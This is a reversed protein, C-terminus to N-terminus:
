QEYYGYNGGYAYRKYGYGRKMNVGNFLITPKTLKDKRLFDGANELMQKKTVGARVIYLTNTIFESFLLADSVLGIPPSDVIIVDFEEKLHIFLDSLADELLLEQPNTRISGCPIFSLNTDPVKQCIDDLTSEGALFDTVGPEKIAALGLHNALKPKRLDLELLITKQRTLAFSLALNLAVFTKGEGSISSTVLLTQQAKKNQFQLNTRILRFREAIATRVNKYVVINKKQRKRNISGLIPLKSIQQIDEETQIRSQLMDKGVLLFFPLLFGSFLGSLYVLSGKPSIPKMSVRPLDITTSNTTTAILSLATEERKQLLFLYLNEKISQQRKIKLLGREQTPVQRLRGVLDQNLGQISSLKKNLDGKLNNITTRIVAQLSNLQQQNSMLLPNSDKATELLKRRNLVLNNYPEILRELATNALILSSPILPFENPKGTYTDMSELISLQVELNTQEENYKSMEKMVLDLNTAADGGIANIKKFQEVNEEVANLEQTIGDLRENIFKLSNRTINNKNAITQENYFEILQNLITKGREPIVETLRLEVITAELDVLNVSLKKLYNETTVSPNTFTLHYTSDAVLDLTPIVILRFSGYPTSAMEGFNFKGMIIDGRYFNFQQYDIPEVQFSLGGEDNYEASRITLPSLSFTDLIIPFDEYAPISKIWYKYSFTTSLNLADVVKNMLSFSSLIRIENAVNESAGFLNLDKLLKEGPAFNKSKDEKILLQSRIEYVRNSFKLYGYAMTTTLGICLLYWYWHDFFYKQLFSPINIKEEEEVSTKSTAIFLQKPTVMKLYKTSFQNQFRM